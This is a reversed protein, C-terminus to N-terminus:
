RLMGFNMFAATLSIILATLCFGGHRACFGIVRVGRNKGTVKGHGVGKGSATGFFIATNAEFRGASTLCEKPHVISTSISIPM